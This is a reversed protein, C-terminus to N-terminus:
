MALQPAIGRGEPTSFALPADLVLLCICDEDGDAIPTHHESHDCASFDGLRYHRGNSNYSGALVLMFENGEHSHEPVHKGPAVRLMSVRYDPTLAPLKVEDFFGDVSTWPLRALDGDVYPRLVAPVAGRPEVPDRTFPEDLRALCAALARDDSPVPELEAMLEWGLAELDAVIGSCRACFSLHGAVALALAAPQAGTALDFLLEDPPHHSIM